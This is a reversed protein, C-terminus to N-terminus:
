IDKLGQDRVILIGVRPADRVIPKANIPAYTTSCPKRGEHKNSQRGRGIQELVVKRTNDRDRQAKECLFM